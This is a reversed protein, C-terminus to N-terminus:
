PRQDDFDINIPGNTIDLDGTTAMPQLNTQSDLVSCSNNIMSTEVRVDVFFHSPSERISKKWSGLDLLWCM